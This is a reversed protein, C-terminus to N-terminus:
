FSRGNRQRLSAEKEVIIIIKGNSLHAGFSVVTVNRGLECPVYVGSTGQCDVNIQDPEPGLCVVRKAEEM